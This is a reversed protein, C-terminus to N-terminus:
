ETSQIYKCWTVSNLPRLRHRPNSNTSLLHYFTAWVDERMSDEHLWDMFRKYDKYRTHIALNTLRGKGALPKGNSLKVKIESGEPEVKYKANHQPM